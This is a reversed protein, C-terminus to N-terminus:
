FCKKIYDAIVRVLRQSVLFVSLAGTVVSALALLVSAIGTLVAVAIASDIM